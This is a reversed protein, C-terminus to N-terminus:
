IKVLYIKKLLNNSVATVHGIDGMFFKGIEINEDNSKLAREMLQHFEETEEYIFGLLCVKMHTFLDTGTPCNINVQRLRMPETRLLDEKKSEGVQYNAYYQMGGKNPIRLNTLIIDENMQNDKHPERLRAVLTESSQRAASYLSSLEKRWSLLKEHPFNHIFRM